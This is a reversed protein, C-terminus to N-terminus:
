QPVPLNLFYVLILLLIFHFMDHFFFHYHFVYNLFLFVFINPGVYGQLFLGFSFGYEISYRVYCLHVVFRENRKTIQCTWHFSNRGHPSSKCKETSIVCIYFM